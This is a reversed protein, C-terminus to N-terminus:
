SPRFLRFGISIDRNSPTIYGRGASRLYQGNDYCSGGRAVRLAGVSASGSSAGLPNTQAGSSYDGYWDWCWEYVNGHMDYLGLANPQKTGVEHTKSGSNSSYWGASDVSSGSSYPTTTGARCAYEWEAETPLRYGTAGSNLTVTTGSVTYAPTLGERRSRANCYEVVEYWSVYYMPYNDGEGYLSSDGAKDRQQQITTGMLDRWEKQTVEYRGMYFSSLTVSHQPDEDSERQAKSAPSGMTFTGGEIWVMGDPVPREVPVEVEPEEAVPAAAEPQAVEAEPAEQPAEQAVEPAAEVSAPASGCSLVSGALVVSLALGIAWM